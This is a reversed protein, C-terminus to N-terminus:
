HKRVKKDEISRAHKNLHKEGKKEEMHKVHKWEMNRLQKNEM